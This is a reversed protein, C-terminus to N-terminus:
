KGPPDSSEIPQGHEELYPQGKQEEDRERLSRPVLAHKEVRAEPGWRSAPRHTFVDHGAWDFQSVGWGWSRFASGLRVGFGYIIASAVAFGPRPPSFVVAPDYRPVVIFDADAPMIEINRGGLVTIASNSRLYGGDWARHRLRQMADMLDERQALFADGFNILWSMDRAMGELVSPFPLLAQVSPDWPLHDERIARALADGTLYHHQDGWQAAGPIEDPFTAAAMMQSLLSDPYLALDAVLKDADDPSFYPYPAPTQAHVGATSLAVLLTAFFVLVAGQIRWRLDVLQRRHHTCPIRM